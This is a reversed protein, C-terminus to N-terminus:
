WDIFKETENGKEDNWFLQGDANHDHPFKIKLQNVADEYTEAEFNGEVIGNESEFWYDFTQM